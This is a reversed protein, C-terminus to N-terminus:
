NHTPHLFKTLAFGARTAFRSEAILDSFTYLELFFLGQSISADGYKKTPNIM